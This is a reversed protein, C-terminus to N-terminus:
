KKYIGAESLLEAVEDYYIGAQEDISSDSPCGFSYGAGCVRQGKAHLSDRLNSIEEDDWGETYRSFCEECDEPINADGLSYYRYGIFSVEGNYNQYYIKYESESNIEGDVLDINGFYFGDDWDKFDSVEIKFNITDNIKTTNVVKVAMINGGIVIDM